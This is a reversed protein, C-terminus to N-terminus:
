SAGGEPEPGPETPPSESSAIHSSSGSAPRRVGAYEQLNRVAEELFHVARQLDGDILNDLKGLQKTLPTVRSDFNQNWQKVARLKDEAERVAIRARQVAKQHSHGAEGLASIKASLLQAQAEDLVQNRRKLERVWFMRQDSQLWTRTRNTEDGIEDVVLKAREMFVLLSARFRDLSEVSTVNARPAAM